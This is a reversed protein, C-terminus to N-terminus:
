YWNISSNTAKNTNVVPTQSSVAPETNKTATNPRPLSPPTSRSKGLGGGTGSFLNPTSSYNAYFNSIFTRSALKAACHDITSMTSCVNAKLCTNLQAAVTKALTRSSSLLSDFALDPYGLYSRCAAVPPTNEAFTVSTVGLLIVAASVVFRTVKKM